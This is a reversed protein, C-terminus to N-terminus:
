KFQALHSIDMPYTDTPLLAKYAREGVTVYGIETPHFADFFAQKTRDNCPVSNPVCQGNSSVKCCPTSKLPAYNSRSSPQVISIGTSNIYIFKADSHQKNLEDVLITLRKNFLQVDNNIKDYCPSKSPQHLAIEAPSCGIAGLGFLAVKRAGNNYLTTIHQRYQQVLTLAYQDPTYTKSTPYNQPQLYNNIYDNSGIGVSYMCKKVLENASEKNGLLTAFRSITVQHNQLQRGLSIVQGLAQGTEDRIGAGGSAYNVGTLIDRGKATAFPPIHHDFGLREAIIDPLNRGNSFRGTVGDHFDIGYPPYNAKAITKLGNNNGNDCLSDGFVFYCPVQPEASALPGLNAAMLTICLLVMFWIKLKCAM